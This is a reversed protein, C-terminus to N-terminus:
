SVLFKLECTVIFPASQVHKPNRIDVNTKLHLLCTACLHTITFSSFMASNKHNRTYPTEFSNSITTFARYVREKPLFFANKIGIVTIQSINGNLTASIKQTVHYTECLELERVTSFVRMGHM